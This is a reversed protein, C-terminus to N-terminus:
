VATTENLTLSWDLTFPGEPLELARASVFEGACLLVASGEQDQQAPFDAEFDVRDDLVLRSAPSRVGAIDIEWPGADHVARELARMQVVARSVALDLSM